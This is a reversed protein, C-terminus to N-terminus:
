KEEDGDCGEDGKRRKAAPKIDEDYTHDENPSSAYKVTYIKPPDELTRDIDNSRIPSGTDTYQHRPCPGHPVEIGNVVTVKPKRCFQCKYRGRKKSPKNEVITESRENAIPESAIQDGNASLWELLPRMSGPFLGKHLNQLAQFLNTYLTKWVRTTLPEALPPLTELMSQALLEVYKAPSNSFLPFMNRLITVLRDVTLVSPSPESQLPEGDTDLVLNVLLESNESLSHTDNDLILSQIYADVDFLSSDDNDLRSESPQALETNRELGFLPLSSENGERNSKAVTASAGYREESRSGSGTASFGQSEGGAPLLERDSSRDPALVVTEIGVFYDVSQRQDSDSRAEGGHVEDDGDGGDHWDEDDNRISMTGLFVERIRGVLLTLLVECDWTNKICELNSNHSHPTHM